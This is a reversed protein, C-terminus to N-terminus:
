HKRRRVAVVALCVVGVLVAVSILVLELHATIWGQVDFGGLGSTAGVQINVHSVVTQIGSQFTFQSSVQVSYNGDAVSSPVTVGVQITNGSGLTLPLVPGTLWDAGAGQFTIQTLFVNTPSAWSVPILATASGGPAVSVSCDSVQINLGGSSPGSPGSPGSPASISVSFMVTAQGVTGVTNNAFDYFTYSSGDVFGALYMIGATYSENSAYIWATGNKCNFWEQDITGGSASFQVPITDSTYTTNTPNTITVTVSTLSFVPQATTNGTITFTLPNSSGGSSGNVLWNSWDYGSSNTEYIAVTAGSTYNTYTGAVPNTAGGTGSSITLTPDLTLTYNASAFVGATTNYVKVNWVYMGYAPFTYSFSNATNNAVATQNNQVNQWTGSANVWLSANQITDGVCIPTYTLTASLSTQSTSNSPSNLTVILSAYLLTLTYNSSAFTSM